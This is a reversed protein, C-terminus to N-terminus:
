PQNGLEIDIENLPKGRATSFSIGEKGNRRDIEYFGRLGPPPERRLLDYVIGCSKATQYDDCIVVTMLQESPFEKNLRRALATMGDRTFYKPDVSIHLVFMQPDAEPRDKCGKRYKPSNDVNGQFNPSLSKSSVTFALCSYIFILAVCFNIGNLKM